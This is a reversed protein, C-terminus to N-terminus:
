TLIAGLAFGFAIGLAAFAVFSVMGDEPGPPHDLREPAVYAIKPATAELIADRHEECYYVIAGPTCM